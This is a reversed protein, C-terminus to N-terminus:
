VQSPMCYALPGAKGTPESAMTKPRSSSRWIRCLSCEIKEVVGADALIRVEDADRVDDDFGDDVPGEAGPRLLPGVSGPFDPGM